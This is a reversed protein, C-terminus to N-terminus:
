GIQLAKKKEVTVYVHDTFNSLNLMVNTKGTFPLIGDAESAHAFAHKDYIHSIKELKRRWEGKQM